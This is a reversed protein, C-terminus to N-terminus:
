KFYDIYWKVFAGIGDKLVTKAKYDVDKQLKTTDAYTTYVDGQQM